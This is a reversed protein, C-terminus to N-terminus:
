PKLLKLKLGPFKRFDADMTVWTCDSEVAMAALYADPVLNGRANTHRCFDAFIDLHKDGPRIAMYDPHSRISAIFDLADAVPTPPDFIKQTIIRVFGSLVNDFM